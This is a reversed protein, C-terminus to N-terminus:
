RFPCASAELSTEISWHPLMPHVDILDAKKPAEAMVYPAVSAGSERADGVYIAHEAACGCEVPSREFQFTEETVLMPLMNLPAVEKLWDREEQLTEETMNMLLINRSVEKSPSRDLQSTEETVLMDPMNRLVGKLWGREEQFTEETVSM